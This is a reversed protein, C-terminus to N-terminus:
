AATDLRIVGWQVLWRRPDFRPRGARMGAVHARVQSHLGTKTSHRRLAQIELGRAADSFSTGMPAEIACPYKASETPTEVCVLAEFCQTAGNYVVDSMKVNTHTMRVRRM